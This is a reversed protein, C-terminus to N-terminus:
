RSIAKVVRDGNVTIQDYAAKMNRSWLFEHVKKDCEPEWVEQIIKLQEDIIYVM